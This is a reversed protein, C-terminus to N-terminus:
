DVLEYKGNIYKFKTGETAKNALGMPFDIEEFCEGTYNTENVLTVTNESKEVFSYINGEAREGELKDAQEKLVSNIMETLNAQIEKTAEEDLVFKGDKLRLVSDIGADKPLESEKVGINRGAEGNIHSVLGYTNDSRKSYVYYFEGQSYHEKSYNNIIEHRQVNIKDRCISTLPQGDLTQQILAEDNRGTNGLNKELFEGLEKIFNQIFNNDKTVNFLNNFLDLNM